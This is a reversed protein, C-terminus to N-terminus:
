MLHSPLVCYSEGAELAKGDVCVVFDVYNLSDMGVCADKRGDDELFHTLKIIVQPECESRKSQCIWSKQTATAFNRDCGGFSRRKTSNVEGLWAVYEVESSM